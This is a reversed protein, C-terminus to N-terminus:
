RDRQPKLVKQVETIMCEINIQDIVNKSVKYIIFVDGAEPSPVNVHPGAMQENTHLVM